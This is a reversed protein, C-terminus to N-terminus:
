FRADLANYIAVVEHHDDIATNVLKPLKGISAPVGVAALFAQKDRMLPGGTRTFGTTMRLMQPLNRVMGVPGMTQAALITENLLGSSKVSWTFWWVHKGHRGNYGDHALALNKAALLASAGTAGMRGQRRVSAMDAEAKAGTAGSLTETIATRSKDSIRPDCSRNWLHGILAPGLYRPNHPVADSAAHLLQPSAVDNTAHLDTAVSADMLGFVGQNTDMGEREAGVFWPSIGVRLNEFSSLDVALDRIVEYAPLPEIRLAPGAGKDRVVDCLRTMGPLVLRGNVSVGTTPDDAAGDRFTLSGDQTARLSRLLDLVSVHGPFACAWADSGTEGTAADYRFINVTLQIEPQAVVAVEGSGAATADGAARAKMEDVKDAHYVGAGDVCAIKAMAGAMWASAPVDYDVDCDVRDAVRTGGLNELVQDWEKGSQCYFEYSTDGLALVSFHTSPLLDSAAKAANYLAEANDPQDGEGWTSCVIMVRKMGALSALDFGDMDHVHGVLGYDTAKKAFSACLAECNGSQSGFLLHLDRDGSFLDDSTATAPAEAEAAPASETVAAVPAVAEEAPAEAGNAAEYMIVDVPCAEAAEIIDDGFEGPKIGDLIVCTDETVHFVEPCITECADCVICGEDIWVKVIASM